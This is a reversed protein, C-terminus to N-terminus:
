YLMIIATHACVPQWHVKHSSSTLPINESNDGADSCSILLLFDVYVHACVYMGVVGVCV